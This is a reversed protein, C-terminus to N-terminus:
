DTLRAIGGNYQQEKPYIAALVRREFETLEDGEQQSDCQYNALWMDGAEILLARLREVEAELETIRNSGREVEVGVRWSEICECANDSPTSSGVGFWEGLRSHAKCRIWGDSLELNNM